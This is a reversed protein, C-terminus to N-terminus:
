GEVWLPAPANSNHRSIIGHLAVGHAFPVVNDRDGHIIQAPSPPCSFTLLATANRLGGAAVWCGGTICSVVVISCAPSLLLVCYVACLVCCVACVLVPSKIRSVRRGNPFVDCLFCCCAAMVCSPLVVRLASRLPSVLIVGKSPLQAALFVTPGSGARFPPLSNSVLVGCVAFVCCVACVCCVCLM